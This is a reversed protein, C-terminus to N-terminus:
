DRSQEVTLEIETNDPTTLVGVINFAKGAYPGTDFVIRDAVTISRTVSCARLTVIGAMGDLVRGAALQERGYSPRIAAWRRAILQPTAWSLRLNGYDDPQEIRRELRVRHSFAGPLLGM